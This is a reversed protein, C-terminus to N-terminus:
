EAGPVRSAIPMRWGTGFSRRNMQLVPASQVRKFEAKRILSLVKEVMDKDYGANVLADPGLDMELHDHLLPDLKDYPPLSDTDKHEPRLEASPAKDIIALPIYDPRKSNLWRCLSYVQTKYIDGIPALAGCSDGYLTSYGVAIESKNGTALLLRNFKNAFAMLIVARIRSQINEETTDPATGQFLGSLSYEFAQMAGEIPITHLDKIGLSKALSVSDTVSGKSSFRSPLMIGTVNDAGFAEVAIAAVLASDIGGSLGIVIKRGGCKNVFDRTGLVIAQWLEEELSMDPRAKRKTKDVMDVVMVSERFAPARAVLAGEGDFVMSSGYMVLGDNGGVINACFVPVRYRIALWGLVRQHLGPLGQAYALSTLNILGDAGGAGMFEAVPDSDFTRRDQWFTRDNWVDEGVTVAMRWGKHQLVGCSIGPEFYRRDDVTGAAPLLVKRSIVIVQGDRLLVACNHLPKGQPVPNYVPAGLLLPPLGPTSRLRDALNNLVFRCGEMFSTQLLLDGATPGCLALEPAICLDAGQAAAACTGAYLLAANYELAGPVPNCQILGIKM